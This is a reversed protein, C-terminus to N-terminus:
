FFGTLNQMKQLIVKECFGDYCLFWKEDLSTLEEFDETVKHTELATLFERREMGRDRAAQDRAAGPPRGARRRRYHRRNRRPQPPAAGM